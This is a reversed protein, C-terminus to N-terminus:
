GSVVARHKLAPVPTLTDLLADITLQQGRTWTAAFTSDDTTARASAIAKDYHDRDLTNLAGGLTDLMRRAAGLMMIMPEWAGKLGAVRALGVLVDAIGEYYGVQQAYSLSETFHTQAAELNGQAYEVWGLKCSALAIGWLDHIASFYALSTRLHSNADLLADQQAAVRGLNCHALALGWIDQAKEFVDISQLFRMRANTYAGRQYAIRGLNYHAYAMSRMDDIERALTLGQEFYAEATEYAGQIRHVRGLCCLTYALDATHEAAQYLPLAEHFLSLAAAADHQDIALLGGSVLAQARIAPAVPGPLALARALWKRGETTQGHLDWFWGLAGTLRLAAETDQRSVAWEIAAVLNSYEQQLLAIGNPQGGGRMELTAHEVTQLCFAVYRRITLEAEPSAILLKLAHEQVTRLMSYRVQESAQGDCQLLSHDVLTTLDDVIASRSRDGTVAEVGAVTCGGVFVALQRFLVQQNASLLDVSWMITSELTRQHLAADSAGRDLRLLRQDLLSLLALPGFYKSQAAALEIALPLGDLRVCIQAAATIASDTDLFTPNIAASRQLFLAVAPSAVLTERSLLPATDPCALPAVRHEHEGSIRLPIRSTVIVKIHPAYQLLAAIQPAAAAVQECNDLLLLMHKTRLYTALLMVLSEDTSERFDLAKAIAPIVLDPDRLTALSVFVGGGAFAAEVAAATALGVRSKGVGPPGVLTLLRLPSQQLLASLTSIERERGILPTLPQPLIPTSPTQHASGTGRLREIPRASIQQYLAVTEVAPEIGLEEALVKRCREYQALAVNRQGARAYVRVLCRHAAEDWAELALARWAYKRARDDEGRAEHYAMLQALADLLQGHLRERILLAWEEWAVSDPVSIQQLFAGRYLEVARALQDACDVCVLATAHAHREVAALHMRLDTVDLVVDAHPNRQITDHDIQLVPPQATADGIAQRLTALATRLSKRAAGAPADPWLLAALADRQLPRDDELMLYALLARVKDYGFNTIPQSGLSVHLPGLLAVRMRAM